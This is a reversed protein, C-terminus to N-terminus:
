AGQFASIQVRRGCQDKGADKSTYLIEECRSVQKQLDELYNKLEQPEMSRSIKCGNGPLVLLHHVEMVPKSINQQTQTIFSTAGYLIICNEIQQGSFEIIGLRKAILVKPPKHSTRAQIYQNTFASHAVCGNLFKKFNGLTKWKKHSPFSTYNQVGQLAILCLASATLSLRTILTVFMGFHLWFCIALQVTWSVSFCLRVPVGIDDFAPLAVSDAWCCHLFQVCYLREQRM